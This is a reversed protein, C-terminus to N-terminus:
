LEFKIALFHFIFFLFPIISPFFFNANKQPLLLIIFHSPNSAM